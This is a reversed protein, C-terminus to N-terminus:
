KIVNQTTQFKLYDNLDNHEYYVFSCDLINECNKKLSYTAMKGANDNDLCSIKENYNKLEPIAKEIFSISNLILYDEKKKQFKYLTKYSLFDIFGEFITICNTSNKLITIDKTGLSGKFYKNRIEFGGSNNAFAIAFYTKNEIKYYVEKCYKKAVDIDIKRSKLYEILANNKLNSVQIIEYSKEEPVSEIFITQQHFSFSDINNSLFDLSESTTYDKLQMILDIVNGGKGQGHDYWCNMKKSVKFSAQTESRFPSLFWAEKESEKKPFHGLNELTKVISINRAKECNLREKKM